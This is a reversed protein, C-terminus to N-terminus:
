PLTYSKKRLWSRAVRVNSSFAFSRSCALKSRLATPKESPPGTRRSLSCKKTFASYRCMPLVAGVLAYTGVASSSARVAGFVCAKKAANGSM